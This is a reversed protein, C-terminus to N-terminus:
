ASPIHISITPNHNQLKQLSSHHISNRITCFFQELIKKSTQTTNPMSTNQKAGAESSANNTATIRTNHESYLPLLYNHTRPASHKDQVM